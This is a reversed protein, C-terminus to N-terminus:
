GLPDRVPPRRRWPAPRPRTPPRRNPIAAARRRAVLWYLWLPAFLLAEAALVPVAAPTLFDGVTEVAPIPQWPLAHFFPSLPWFWPVGISGVNMGDLLLHSAYVAAGALGLGPASRGRRAAVWATALGALLAAGLSHTVGRHGWLSNDPMGFAVLVFDLDAACSVGAFWLWWFRAAGPSEAVGQGAAMGVAIHGISPM